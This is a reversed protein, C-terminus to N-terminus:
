RMMMRIARVLEDKYSAVIVSVSAEIQEESVGVSQLNVILGALNRRHRELSSQLAEPIELDAFPDPELWSGIRKADREM